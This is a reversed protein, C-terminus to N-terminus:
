SHNQEQQLYTNLDPLTQDKPSVILPATVQPWTLGLEPCNYHVGAEAQPAYLADCKYEFIALESTVLFGHAFGKPVLLQKQNEASLHIGFAKKFSKSEPRLDVIVDYVSGLSVRVLKTQAHIGRQLHLGRLTGMTSQSLNDQVWDFRPLLELWKKQSYTELFYGREDRFVKPEIVFADVLPTPTVIM